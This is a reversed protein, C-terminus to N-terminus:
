RLSLCVDEKKHISAKAKPTKDDYGLLHLVGHILVRHLEEDFTKKFKISNERVREISIFIDGEIGKRSTSYDFTIIDTLTNHKLHKSNLGSLYHDSCFIFNVTALAAKEKEVVKKIWTSTKRPHAVKFDIDETFFNVAAM